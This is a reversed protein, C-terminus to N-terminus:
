RTHPSLFIPIRGTLMLSQTSASALVLCAFAALHCSFTMYGCCLLHSRCVHWLQVLVEATKIRSTDCPLAVSGTKAYSPCAVMSSFASVDFIITNMQPEGTPPIVIKKVFITFTYYHSLWTRKWFEQFGGLDMDIRTDPYM